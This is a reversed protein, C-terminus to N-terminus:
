PSAGKEGPCCFDVIRIFSELKLSARGVLVGDVDPVAILRDVNEPTVSGGYIVRVRERSAFGKRQLWQHIYSHVVEIQEATASKGSGIAWVPEYAIDFEADFPVQHLGANLQEGIICFTKEERRQEWTEGCCLIPRLGTRLSSLMKRNCIEDTEGFLTRRESHGIIVYRCGLEKLFVPSVEGTFAGATEWFVNQAGYGIESNRLEDAVAPISTFPPFVVIEREDRKKEKLGERLAKVFARAEEASKNSKWNGAILTRIGSM